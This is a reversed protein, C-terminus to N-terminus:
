MPPCAHAQFISYGGEDFIRRSLNSCEVIWGTADFRLSSPYEMPSTIVSIFVMATVIIVTNNATEITGVM